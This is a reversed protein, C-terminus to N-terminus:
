QQFIFDQSHRWPGGQYHWLSFGLGQATFPRFSAQLSQLTEKAVVPSVKNQVTVHPWLTQRDQPTLWAQWKQQMPKHLQLLAPCDIKYAVGKGISKVEAVHLSVQKSEKSWQQLDAQIGPEGPPLHHFLTLHASLFNLAPPFYKKRQGDFFSLSAEDLLLTVIM